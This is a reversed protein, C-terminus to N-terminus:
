RAPSYGWDWGTSSLPNSTSEVRGDIFAINISGGHRASPFWYRDDAFVLNSDLAPGSYVPTVGRRQAIEGEIDWVLPVNGQEGIRETLQVHQIRPMGDRITEALHLRVNFGYSVMKPPGVGGQSCPVARRLEVPGPNAPCRMPDNGDQDPLTVLNAGGWSWFEDIRYQTEQFTEVRFRDGPLLEDNGRDGALSRDAFISFDFAVARLGMQCKFSQAARRTAGLGPLLLGILVAIIALVVLLEVLTFGGSNTRATPRFRRARTV